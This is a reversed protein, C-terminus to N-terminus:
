KKRAPVNKDTLNLKRAVDEAAAAVKDYTADFTASVRAWDTQGATRASELANSADLRMKKLTVLADRTSQDARAGAKAELDNIRADLEALKANSRAVFEDRAARAEVAAKGAEDSAQDAKEGAKQRLEGAKAEAQRALVEAKDAVEQAKESARQKDENSRCASGPLIVVAMLLGTTLLTSRLM